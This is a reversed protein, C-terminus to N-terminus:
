GNDEPPTESSLTLTPPKSGAMSVPIYSIVGNVKQETDGGCHMCRYFNKYISVFVTPSECVPCKGNTVEAKLKFAGGFIDKGFKTM